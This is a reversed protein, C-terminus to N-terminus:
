YPSPRSTYQAQQQQWPSPRLREWDRPPQYDRREKRFSLRDGNEQAEGRRSDRNRDRERDRDRDRDSWNREREHDHRGDRRGDRESDIEGDELDDRELKDARDAKEVRDKAGKDKARLAEYM